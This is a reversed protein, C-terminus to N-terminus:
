VCDQNFIKITVNAINCLNKNIKLQRQKDVRIEGIFIFL